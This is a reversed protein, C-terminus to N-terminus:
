DDYDGKRVLFAEKVIPYRPKAISLKTGDKLSIYYREMNEVYKMNVLYSKHIRCFGAKGIETEIADLKGYLSYQSNKAVNMYFNLKHLNSEIYIIESLDIERKGEQFMFIRKNGKVKMKQIISYLSEEMAAELLMNNKLIYRCADVKYGETSYTIYATVFVLYVKQNNTRICKATELGDIEDMSIDLFVIDYTNLEEAKLFDKGSTYLDVNYEHPYKLFFNQIIKKEQQLFIEDDDCIAIKIM